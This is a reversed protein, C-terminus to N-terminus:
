LLSSFMSGKHLDAEEKQTFHWYEKILANM